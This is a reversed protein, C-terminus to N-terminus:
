KVYSGCNGKEGKEKEKEGGVKVRGGTLGNKNIMARVEGRHGTKKRDPKHSRQSWREEWHGSYPEGM